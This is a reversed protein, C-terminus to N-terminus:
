DGTTEAGLEILRRFVLFALWGVLIGELAGACVDIPSHVRLVPRSFCVAVAWFVLLLCVLRRSDTFYGLGLAMFFTAVLMSSFSHGSPFSYGTEQIWHRRVCEEMPPGADQLRESLYASRQPKDPIQYFEAPSVGLVSAGDTEKALEKICPRHVAFFPKIAYENLYAGGGLFLSLVLVMSALTSGRQRWAIGARSLLLFAMGFIIVPLVGIGGSEATYFAAVAVPGALDIPNQEIFLTFPLLAGAALLLPMLRTLVHRTPMRNSHM